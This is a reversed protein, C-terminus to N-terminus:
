FGDVEWQAIRGGTLAELEAVTAAGELPATLALMLHGDDVRECALGALVPAPGEVFAAGRARAVEGLLAYLAGEEGPVCAADRVLLGDQQAKVEAYACIRGGEELVWADRWEALVWSEWYASEGRWFALPFQGMYLDYLGQAAPLDAREFARVSQGRGLAPLSQARVRGYHPHVPTFGHRGYHSTLVGYLARLYMGHADMYDDAMKLLRDSLGRGRYEPLTCVEGIGGTLVPRGGLMLRRTFVRVSSVLRGDEEAVFIGDIDAWPDMEFHRRFYASGVPFVTGCLAYWADLEPTKLTRTVM